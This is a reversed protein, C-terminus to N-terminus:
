KWNQDATTWDQRSQPLWELRRRPGVDDSSRVIVVGQRLDARLDRDMRLRKQLVRGAVALASAGGLGWGLYGLELLHVLLLAGVLAVLWFSALTQVFTWWRHHRLRTELEFRELALLDRVEVVEAVRRYSSRPADIPRMCAPELPPPDILAGSHPLVLISVHTGEFIEDATEEELDRSDCIALDVVGGYRWAVGSRLDELALRLHAPSFPSVPVALLEMVGAIGVGLGLLGALAGLTEGDVRSAAFGLLVALLAAAIMAIRLGMTRAFCVAFPLGVLLACVMASFFFVCISLGIPPYNGDPDLAFFAFGFGLYLTGCAVLALAIRGVILWRLEARIRSRLRRQEGEGISVTEVFSLQGCRRCSGEARLDDELAV